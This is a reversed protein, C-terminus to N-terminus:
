ILGFRRVTSVNVVDAPRRYIPRAHAVAVCVVVQRQHDGHHRGDVPAFFDAEPGSPRNGTRDCYACASLNLRHLKVSCLHAFRKAPYKLPHV